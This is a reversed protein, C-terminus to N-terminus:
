DHCNDLFGNCRPTRQKRLAWLTCPTDREMPTAVAVGFSQPTWPIVRAAAVETPKPREFIPPADDLAMLINRSGALERVLLSAM